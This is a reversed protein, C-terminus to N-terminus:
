LVMQWCTLLYKQSLRQLDHQEIVKKPVDLFKKALQGSTSFTLVQEIGPVIAISADRYQQAEQAVEQWPRKVINGNKGGESYIRLMGNKEDKWLQEM